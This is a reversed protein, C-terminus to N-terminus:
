NQIEEPVYSLTSSTFLNAFEAGPQSYLIKQNECFVVQVSDGCAALLAARDLSDTRYAPLIRLLTEACGSSSYAVLDNLAARPLGDAPDVYPYLLSGEETRYYRKESNGFLDYTHLSVTSVPGRLQVSGAKFAGNGAWDLIDTSYTTDTPDLVRCFGDNSSLTGLTYGRDMLEGALYDAVFANKMWYLDLLNEIGNERAYALYADSVHLMVRNDGLLELNVQAPDNAFGCVEAYYAAAEPNRFPDYEKEQFDFECFFLDHYQQYVPALYISRDGSKVIQELAGYLASDVELATNPNVSLTHLNCYGEFDEYAHFVKFAKAAMETYDALITKYEATASIGSAGLNYYFTFESAVTIGESSQVEIEKWGPDQSLSKIGFYGFSIVAVALFFAVLAIRLKSNSGDVHIRKVPAPRFADRNDRAYRSM